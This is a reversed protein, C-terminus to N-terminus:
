FSEGNEYKIRDFVRIPFCLDEVKNNVLACIPEFTLAQGLRPLMDIVKEGGLADVYTKTNKCYVKM